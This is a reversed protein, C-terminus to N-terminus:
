KKKIYIKTTMKIKLKVLYIIHKYNKILEKLNTNLKIKTKTIKNIKTLQWTLM